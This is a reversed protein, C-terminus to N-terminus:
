IHCFLCVGIFVLYDKYLRIVSATLMDTEKNTIQEFWVDLFDVFAENIGFCAHFHWM